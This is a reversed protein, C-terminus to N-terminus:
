CRAGRDDIPGVTVKCIELIRVSAIRAIILRVVGFTSM